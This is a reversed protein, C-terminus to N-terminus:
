LIIWGFLTVKIYLPWIREHQTLPLAQLAADFTRRTRTILRLETLLELYDIWIRPMKHMFVLAREYCNNVEKRAPDAPSLGKIDRRREALYKSWLKYSRAPM